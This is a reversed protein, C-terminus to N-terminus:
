IQKLFNIHTHTHKVKIIRCMLISYRQHVIKHKTVVKNVMPVFISFKQGLQIILACLTDMATNQLESSTDMTRVLPHIIRSAYDTLDLTDSMRDITELAVRIYCLCFKLFVEQFLCAYQQLEYFLFFNM